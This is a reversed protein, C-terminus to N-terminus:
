PLGLLILPPTTGPYTDDEHPKYVFQDCNLYSVLNQLYEESKCRIYYSKYKDYMMMSGVWKCYYKTDGIKRKWEEQDMEFDM